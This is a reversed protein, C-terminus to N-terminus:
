LLQEPVVRSILREILVERAEDSHFAADIRRRVVPLVLDRLEADLRIVAGLGSMRRIHLAEPLRESILKDDDVTSMAEILIYRDPVSLARRDITDEIIEMQRPRIRVAEAVARVVLLHEPCDAVRDRHSLMILHELGIM